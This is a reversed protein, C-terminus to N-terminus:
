EQSGEEECQQSSPLCGRKHTLFQQMLSLFSHFSFNSYLALPTFEPVRFITRRTECAGESTLM